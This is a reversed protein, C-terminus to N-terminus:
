NGEASRRLGGGWGFALMGQGVHQAAVLEAVSGVAVSAVAWSWDGVAVNCVIGGPNLPDAAVGPSGAAVGPSGAATKVLTSCAYKLMEAATAATEVAGAAIELLEKAFTQM